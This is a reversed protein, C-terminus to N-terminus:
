ESATNNARAEIHACRDMLAEFTEDDDLLMGDALMGAYDDALADRAAGIPVLQLDGSVAAEYDIRNGAGDNEM